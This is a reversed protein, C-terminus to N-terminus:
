SRTEGEGLKVPSAAPPPRSLPSCRHRHRMAGPQHSRPPTARLASGWRSGPWAQRSFRNKGTLFSSKTLRPFERGHTPTVAQAAAARSRKRAGGAAHPAGPYKGTAPQQHLSFLEAPHQLAARSAASTVNTFSTFTHPLTKPLDTLASCSPATVLRSTNAGLHALHVTSAPCSPYSGPFLTKNCMQSFALGFGFISPSGGVTM